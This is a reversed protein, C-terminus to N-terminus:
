PWPRVQFDGQAAGAGTGTSVSRVRWNGPSTAAVPVPFRLRVLGTSPNTVEAAVGLVYDTLVGAPTRLTFTHGTPNVAPSLTDEIIAIDGQEYIM